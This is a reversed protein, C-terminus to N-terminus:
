FVVFMLRGNLSVFWRNKQNWIRKSNYNFRTFNLVLDINKSFLDYKELSVNEITCLKILIIDMVVEYKSTKSPSYYFHHNNIWQKLAFHIVLLIKFSFPFREKIIMLHDNRDLHSWIWYVWLAKHYIQERRSRLSWRM